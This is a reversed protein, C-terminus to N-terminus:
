AKKSLDQFSYLNCFTPSNELVWTPMAFPPFSLYKEPFCKWYSDSRIVYNKVEKEEFNIAMRLQYLVQKKLYIYSGYSLIKM